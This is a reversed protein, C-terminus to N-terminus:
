FLGNSRGIRSKLGDLHEFWVKMNKDADFYEEVWVRAFSRIQDATDPQELVTRIADTVGTTVDATTPEKTSALVEQGRMLVADTNTGGVDIGIRLGSRGSSTAAKDM